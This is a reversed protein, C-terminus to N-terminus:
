RGLTGADTITFDPVLLALGTQWAGEVPTISTNSSCANHIIGEM